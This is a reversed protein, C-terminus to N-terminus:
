AAGAVVAIWAGRGIGRGSGAGSAILPLAVFAAAVLLRGVGADGLHGGIVLASGTASAIVALALPALEREREHEHERPALWVTAVLAAGAFAIATRNATLAVTLALLWALAAGARRRGGLALAPPLAGVCVLGLTPPY